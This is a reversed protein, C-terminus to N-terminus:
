CAQACLACILNVDCCSKGTLGPGLANSSAAFAGGGLDALSLLMLMPFAHGASRSTRDSRQRGM